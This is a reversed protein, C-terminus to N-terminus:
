YGTKKKKKRPAASASPSFFSKINSMASGPGGRSGFGKSFATRAKKTGFGTKKKKTAM